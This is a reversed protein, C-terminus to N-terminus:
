PTIVTQLRFALCADMMDIMLRLRSQRFILAESDFSRTLSSILAKMLVLFVSM